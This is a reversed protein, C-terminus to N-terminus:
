LRAATPASASPERATRPSLRPLTLRHPRKRPGEGKWFDLAQCIRLEGPSCVEVRDADRAAQEIIFPNAKIAYCLGISRQYTGGEENPDGAGRVAVFRMTPVTVIEPTAKPMYYEKYEKKFDFAM